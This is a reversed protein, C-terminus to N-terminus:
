PTTTTAISSAASEGSSNVATVIFQYATKLSVNILQQSLAGTVQYSKFYHTTTPTSGDKTDYVNYSTVGDVANWSITIEDGSGDTLAVSSATVGTPASPVAGTNGPNSCGACLLVLCALLAFRSSKNM